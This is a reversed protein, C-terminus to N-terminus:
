RLMALGIKNLKPIIYIICSNKDERKNSNKSVEGVVRAIEMDLHPIASRRDAVLKATIALTKKM